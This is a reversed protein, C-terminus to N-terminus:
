GALVVRNKGSRKAKYLATDAREILEAAATDEDFLEAVGASATTRGLQEITARIREAVAAAGVMATEPLIVLFEEGGYRGAIDISRVSRTIAGAVDHLTDDGAVHGYRDNISKFDDLDIMLVALPHGYRKARAIEEGIREDIARRNNLGTLPDTRSEAAISGIRAVEGTHQQWWEAFLVLIGIAGATGAGAMSWGLQFGGIAVMAVGTSGIVLAILAMILSDREITRPPNSGIEDDDRNLSILAMAAGLIILASTMWVSREDISVAILAVGAGPFCLAAPLSKPQSRLQHGVAVAGALAALAGALVQTVPDSTQGLDALRVILLSGLVVASSPILLSRQGRPLLGILAYGLLALILPDIYASALDFVEAGISLVAAAIIAGSSQRVHRHAAVLSGALFAILGALLLNQIAASGLSRSAISASAVASAAVILAAADRSGTHDISEHALSNAM